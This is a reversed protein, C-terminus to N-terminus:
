TFANLEVGQPIMGLVDEYEDLRRAGYQMMKDLWEPNADVVTNCIYLPRGLRLAEWGQHITGSGNGAEVIITADSVLAMTRNRMVFNSRYITNGVPFQSIALHEAMIDRQLSHNQAPYTRDLPTGLVAMTKGGCVIATRHAITDVGAALGSVVVVGNDVLMGSLNRAEEVGRTTPSRTGVVSVKPQTPVLSLPGAAYIRKPAYKQETYNLPRNLLDQISLVKM